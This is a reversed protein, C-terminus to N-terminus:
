AYALAQQIAATQSDAFTLKLREAVWPLDCHGDHMAGTAAYSIGTRDRVMATKEIGLREGTFGLSARAADTTAGAIM